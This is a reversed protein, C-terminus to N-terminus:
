IAEADFSGDATEADRAEEEAAQRRALEIEKSIEMQRRSLAALDRASTGTDDLARAIVLRMQVLEDLRTGFVAADEVSQVGRAPKDGPRVARLKPATM